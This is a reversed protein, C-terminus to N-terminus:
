RILDKLGRHTTCDGMFGVSWVGMRFGVGLFVGVVLQLGLGWLGGFLFRLGLAGDWVRFGGFGRLFGGCVSLGM